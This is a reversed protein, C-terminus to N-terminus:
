SIAEAIVVPHGRSRFFIGPYGATQFGESPNDHLTSDQLGRFRGDSAHRGM